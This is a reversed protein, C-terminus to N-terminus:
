RSFSSTRGFGSCGSRNRRGQRALALNGICLMRHPFGTLKTFYCHFDFCRAPMKMVIFERYTVLVNGCFYSAFSVLCFLHSINVPKYVNHELPDNM